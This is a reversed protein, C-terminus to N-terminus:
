LCSGFHSFSLSLSLSLPLHMHDCCKDPLRLPDPPPHLLLNLTLQPKWLSLKLFWAFLFFFIVVTAAQPPYALVTATLQLVLSRRTVTLSPVLSRSSSIPLSYVQLRTLRNTVKLGGFFPNASVWVLCCDWGGMALVGTFNGVTGVVRVM